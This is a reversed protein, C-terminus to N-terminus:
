EPLIAEAYCRCRYAQGPNGGEPPKDYSFSVGNRLFHSPRANPYLGKPDGRVREDNSTRWIYSKVGISEQREQTIAANAKALQDIAIFEARRKTIGGLKELDKIIESARIGQTISQYVISNVKDFHLQPISKILNVNEIIKLQLLDDLKKDSGIVDVGLMNILQKKFRDKNNREIASIFRRAMSGAMFQIPLFQATLEEIKMKLDDIASDKTYEALAMKIIPYLEKRIKNQINKVIQMLERKYKVGISKNRRLIPLTNTPPKNKKM